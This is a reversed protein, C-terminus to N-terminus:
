SHRMKVIILRKNPGTLMKHILTLPTKFRTEQNYYEHSVMMLNEKKLATKIGEYDITEHVDSRSYNLRPTKIQHVRLYFSHLRDSVFYDLFLLLRKFFQKKVQRPITEHDIYLVGGRKLVGSLKKVTAIYDPLHHLVSYAAVLDFREEFDVKDFNVNVVKLKGTEVSKRNRAKLVECMEKSIDIATVHFGLRLLKETINGTGAGFDMAKFSNNEIQAVAFKLSAWLRKQEDKNWIEDHIWDYVTSEIRHLAINGEIIEEYSLSCASLGPASGKGNCGGM